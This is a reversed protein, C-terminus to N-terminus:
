LGAALRAAGRLGAAPDKVVFVPIGALLGSFRGKQAFHRLFVGDTLRPLIRAAIGGALYVGGTALSKLALNGAEAGYLQVFRDLALDCLGDSRALGHRSIVAPADTGRAEIEARVAPQEPREGRERFFEYLLVLGAGCLVREVSVHDPFRRLLFRLLDAELESRPAFDSHGGETPLIVPPEVCRAILAQGMGTGAGLVAVAGTREARAEPNLAVLELAGAGSAAAAVASAVAYFDNVLRVAELGLGEALPATEIAYSLNTIEARQARQAKQAGGGPGTVEPVETIPGAVGFVARRPAGHVRVEDAVEALFAQVMPLLGDFARSDYRRTVRPEGDASCLSLLTKTGGLDGALLTM